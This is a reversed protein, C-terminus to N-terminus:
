RITSSRTPWSPISPATTLSSRKSSADFAWPKEVTRYEHHTKQDVVSISGDANRKLKTQPLLSVKFDYSGPAKEGYLYMFTQIVGGHMPRVSIALEYEPDLYVEYGNPMHVPLIKTSLPLTYPMVGIRTGPPADSPGVQQEIKSVVDQASPPPDSFPRISRHDYSGM